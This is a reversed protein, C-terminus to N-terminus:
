GVQLLPSLHEKLEVDLRRGTYDALHKQQARVLCARFTPDSVVRGMMEAVMEHNKEYFLIGTGSMTEPVAGAAYAMVPVDYAMSEIIPICFGEHESMSLFVDACRYFGNLHSQPVAGAFHISELGLERARTLLLYYYRETGAFSGVHILRSDPEVFRNFYFFALMVDEIKKNPACRGVFLVNKRGDGFKKRTKRDPAARLRAFDLILPLVRVDKYGARTLEDANFKSDALNVRAANTLSMMQDRGRALDVATKKNVTDFYHSPTVNHYLIAKRCSLSAFLENVDSGMSLHLLVIDEQKCAAAYDTVDAAHKRLEPLIRRTESFIDSQRGWSRFIDRMVLAENSIADGNSFGAVFQHIAPV